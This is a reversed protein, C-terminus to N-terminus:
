RHRALVVRKDGVARSLRTQASGDARLVSHLFDLLLEVLYSRLENQDEGGQWDLFERGTTGDHPCAFTFHNAGKLIFLHSNGDCDPVGEEFTRIVTQVPDGEEKGYRHSSAAIVGDHDGALILAPLVAPLPLITEAPWGLAVSAGSHAAYAFTACVGPFWDPNANLLAATGGASHGGLVIHDLDLKGALVSDAQVAKLEDIVPGLVSSSPAKGYNDPALMDLLFGPSISIYGPMEESIATTAVTVYGAAALRLALWSVGEPGLNIGPLLIVVGFPAYKADVPVVGSNREEPTDGFLAPYYIKLNVRDYAPEAEPIAAVRYIARVLSEM